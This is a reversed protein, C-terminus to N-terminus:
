IPHSSFSHHEQIFLLHKHYWIRHQLLSKAQFTHSLIYFIYMWPVFHIIQIFVPAFPMCCGFDIQQQTFIACQRYLSLIPFKRITASLLLQILDNIRWIYSKLFINSTIQSATTWKHHASHRFRFHVIWPQLRCCVNNSWRFWFFIRRRMKRM